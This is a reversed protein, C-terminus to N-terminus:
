QQPNMITGYMGIVTPYKNDAIHDFQPDRAVKSIKGITINATTDLHNEKELILLTTSTAPNDLSMYNFIKNGDDNGVVDNAFTLLNVTDGTKQSVVVLHYFYSLDQNYDPGRSSYLLKIEEEDKLATPKMNFKAIDWYKYKSMCSIFLFMLSLSSMFRMMPFNKLIVEECFKYNGNKAFLDAIFALSEEDFVKEYAV